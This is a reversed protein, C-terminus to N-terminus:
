RIKIGKRGKRIARGIARQEQAKSLRELALKGTKSIFRRPNFRIERLLRDRVELRQKPTLVERIKIPKRGKEIARRIRRETAKRAQITREIRPTARRVLFEEIILQNKTLGVSKAKKNTLSKLVGLRKLTAKSISLLQKRKKPSLRNIRSHLRLKAFLIHGKEHAVIEKRLVKPAEKVLFAEGKKVFGSPKIQGKPVILKKESIIKVAQDIIKNISATKDIRIKREKIFKVREKVRRKIKLSRSFTLIAIRDQESLRQFSKRKRIKRFNIPKDFKGALRQKVLKNLRSTEVKKLADQRAKPILKAPNDTIFAKIIGPIVQIENNALNPHKARNKDMMELMVDQLLDAWDMVADSVE